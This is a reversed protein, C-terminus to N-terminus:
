HVRITADQECYEFREYHLQKFSDLYTKRTLLQYARKSAKCKSASYLLKCELDLVQVQEREYDKKRRLLRQLNKARSWARMVDIDVMDNFGWWAAEASAGSPTSILDSTKMLVKSSPPEMLERGSCSLLSSTADDELLFPLVDM